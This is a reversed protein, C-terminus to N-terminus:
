WSGAVFKYWFPRRTRDPRCGLSTEEERRPAKGPTLRAPAARTSKNDQLTSRHPLFDGPDGRGAVRPATCYEDGCLFYYVNTIYSRPWVDMRKCVACPQRELWARGLRSFDAISEVASRRTGLAAVFPRALCPNCVAGDCRLRWVTDM